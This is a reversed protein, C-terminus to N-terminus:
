GEEKVAVTVAVLEFPENDLFEIEIAKGENEGGVVDTVVSSMDMVGSFGTPNDSDASDKDGYEVQTFRLEQWPQEVGNYRPAAVRARGGRTNNLTLWLGTISPSKGAFAGFRSTRFFARGRASASLRSELYTVTGETNIWVFLPEGDVTDVGYLTYTKGDAPNTQTPIRATTIGGTQPNMWVIITATVAVIVGLSRSAAVSLPQGYGMTVFDVLNPLYMQREQSFTLTAIGRHACFFAAGGLQCSIARRDDCFLPTGVSSIKRTSAGGSVGPNIQEASLVHEAVATGVIVGQYTPEWWEPVGSELTLFYADTALTGISRTAGHNVQTAGIGVNRDDKITAAATDTYMAKGFRRAGIVATRTTMFFFSKAAVEASTSATWPADKGPMTTDDVPVPPVGWSLVTYDLISEVSPSDNNTDVAVSVDSDYVGGLDGHHNVTRSYSYQALSPAGRFMAAKGVITLDASPFQLWGKPAWFVVPEITISATIEVFYDQYTNKRTRSTSKLSGRGFVLSTAVAGDSFVWERYQTGYVDRFTVTKRCLIGYETEGGANVFPFARLYPFGDANQVNDAGLHYWFPVTGGAYPGIWKGNGADGGSAPRAAYNGAALGSKVKDTLLVTAAPGLDSIPASQLQSTQDIIQSNRLYYFQDPPSM